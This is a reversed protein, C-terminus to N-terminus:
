WVALRMAHDEMVLKAQAETTLDPPEQWAIVLAGVMVGFLPPVQIMCLRVIQYRAAAAAGEANPTGPNVSFCTPENRLFKVLFAPDTQESIAPHPGGLPIWVHGDKDLGDRVIAVNDSLRVELLMVGFAHADRIIVPAAQTFAQMDLHPTVRRALIAQAIQARMEYLTYGIGGVVMIALLGVVKWPRDLGSLLASLFGAAGNYDRRPPDEAM